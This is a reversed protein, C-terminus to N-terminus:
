SAHVPITVLVKGQSTVQFSHVSALSVSSAGPYWVSNQDYTATWGSVVSSHGASDTVVLQCKAGAPVGTINTDLMTGWTRPSYRVTATVHTAANTAHLAPWNSPAGQIASNHSHAPSGPNVANWGVAGIVATVAIVAAAAVVSRLRRTRRQDAVRALLSDLLEAPPDEGGPLRTVNDAAAEQAEELPVRRLLAPLAALGALEERCEACVSLHDEVLAREAPDIAGLVYVGLSHKIDRCETSGTM